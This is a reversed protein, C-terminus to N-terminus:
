GVSDGTYARPTQAIRDPSLKNKPQSTAPFWFMKKNLRWGRQQVVIPRVPFHIHM